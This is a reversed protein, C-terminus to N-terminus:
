GRSKYRTGLEICVPKWEGKAIHFGLPQGVHDQCRGDIGHQLAECLRLRQGCGIAQIREGTPRYVFKLFLQMVFCLRRHCSIQKFSLKVGIEEAVLNVPFMWCAECGHLM